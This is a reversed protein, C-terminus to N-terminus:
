LTRLELVLLGLSADEEFCSLAMNPQARCGEIFVSVRGPSMEPLLDQVVEHVLLRSELWECRETGDPMVLRVKRYADHRHKSAPDPDRAGNAVIKLKQAAAAISRPNGAHPALLPSNALVLYDSANRPRWAAGDAHVSPDLKGTVEKASLPRGSRSLFLRAQSLPELPGLEFRLPKAGAATVANHVDTM